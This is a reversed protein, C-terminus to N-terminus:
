PCLRGLYEHQPDALFVDANPQLKARPRAAQTWNPWILCAFTPTVTVLLDADQPEPKETILSGVPCARGGARKRAARVFGLVEAILRARITSDYGANRGNGGM